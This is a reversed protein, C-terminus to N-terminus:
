GTEDTAEGAARARDIVTRAQAVLPADIMEGDVAFVGRGEAAAEESARLIKRAWEIRDPSPTFAENIPAVQAPHVALKGDYGLDRAFATEERLGETDEFDTYVTDIADVGAAGAALVVHERAYLVETGADTRTAGIDAALDEAGFVLADTPGATAISEAQLVGAATEVLALVPCDVGHESAMDSLDTVDDGSSVKPCVLADPEVGDLVVELDARAGRDPPSPRVCVEVDTEVGALADRVHERAQEREGPTVADELDFVVSDAGAEVAKSLLEPQDGPAFLVSRRAM